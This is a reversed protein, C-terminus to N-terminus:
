PDEMQPSKPKVLLKPDLSEGNLSELFAALDLQEASTLNLPTLLPDQHHGPLIRNELNNYFHIVDELSALQGQNMYPPTQAVNRLSPTKFAGWQEPSQILFKINQARESTPDDSFRSASNFPNALLKKVGAYRGSDNLPGGNLTAVGTNHFEMDTFNPGSHCFRCRAKGIFLKLGRQQSSTLAAIKQPDNEALGELFRDFPSNQSILQREYAAIAKGLNVFVRNVNERDSDTLTKWAKEINSIEGLQPMAGFLAEYAQKLRANRSVTIAIALRHGGMERADELPQLAQSWLSDARGDWFFWRNYAVNLLGPTHRDLTGLGKGLARRDAFGLQPVHCTACSINKNSSFGTEFFLFQGFHAAKPNNGFANAPEAELPQFRHQLALEREQTSFQIKENEQFSWIILPALLISICKMGIGGIETLAPYRRGM